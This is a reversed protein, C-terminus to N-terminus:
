ARPKSADGPASQEANSSKFTRSSGAHNLLLEGADEFDDKHVEIVYEPHGIQNWVTENLRIGAMMLLDAIYKSNGKDASVHLAEYDPHTPLPNEEPLDHEQDQASCLRRFWNLM